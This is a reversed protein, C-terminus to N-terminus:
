RFTRRQLFIKVSPNGRQSPVPSTNNKLILIAPINARDSPLFISPTAIFIPSLNDSYSLSLRQYVGWYDSFLYSAAGDPQGM